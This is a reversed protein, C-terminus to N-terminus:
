MFSELLFVEDVVLVVTLASFFLTPKSYVNAFAIVGRYAVWLAASVLNLVLTVSFLQLILSLGFGSAMGGLYNLRSQKDQYALFGGVGAASAGAFWIVATISTALTDDIGGEILTFSSLFRTATYAAIATGILAQAAAQGYQFTASNQDVWLPNTTTFSQSLVDGTFFDTVFSFSVLSSSADFHVHWWPAVMVCAGWVKAACSVGFENWIHLSAQVSRGGLQANINAWGLSPFTVSVSFGPSPSQPTGQATQFTVSQTGSGTSQTNTVPQPAINVTLTSSSARYGADGSGNANFNATIGYSGTNDPRWIFNAQGGSDTTVNQYFAGNIEVQVVRGSLSVGNADKLSVTFSNAQGLTITGAQVTLKTDLYVMLPDYIRAANYVGTVASVFTINYSGKSGFVPPNFVAYGTSDTNVTATNVGNIFLSVPLSAIASNSVMDQAYVNWTVPQNVGPSQPSNNAALVVNRRAVSVMITTSSNTYFNQSPLVAKITYQGAAQPTWTFVTNGNPDTQLTAYLAGNIYINETLGAVTIQTSTANNVLSTEYIYQSLALGNESWGLQSVVLVLSMVQVTVQGSGPGSGMTVTLVYNGPKFNITSPSYLFFSSLTSHPGQLCGSFGGLLCITRSTSSTQNFINMYVETISNPWSTANFQFSVTTGVPANLDSHQVSVGNVLFAGERGDMYGWSVLNSTCYPYSNVCASFTVRLYWSNPLSNLSGAFASFRYCFETGCINSSGTLRTLSQSCNTFPYRACGISMNAQGDSWSAYVVGGFAGNYYEVYISASSAASNAGIIQYFEYPSSGQPHVNSPVSTSGAPNILRIIGQTASALSSIDRLIVTPLAKYITIKFSQSLGNLTATASRTVSLTYNGYALLGISLVATGNVNTTSSGTLITGPNPTSRTLTYNFVSNSLPKSTAQDRLQITANTKDLISPTTPNFSAQATIPHKQVTLFVDCCSAYPYQIDSYGTSPYLITYASDLFFTRMDLLYRGTRQPAYVAYNYGQFNTLFPSPNSVAEIHFLESLTLTNGSTYIAAYAYPYGCYIGNGYVYALGRNNTISYAGCYVLNGISNFNYLYVAVNAGPTNCSSDSCVYAFDSYGPLAYFTYGGSLFSSTPGGLTYALYANYAALAVPLGQMTVSLYPYTANVNVYLNAPPTATQVVQNNTASISNVVQYPVSLSTSSASYLTSPPSLSATLYLHGNRVATSCNPPYPCPPLYFNRTWNMNQAQTYTGNMTVTVSSTLNLGAWGYGIVNPPASSGSSYPPMYVNAPSTNNSLALSLINVPVVIPLGNGYYYNYIDWSFAIQRPNLIQTTTPTQNITLSQQASSALYTATGAFAATIVHSGTIGPNWVFSAYGTTNTTARGISIGDNYFNMTAYWAPYGYQDRLQAKLVTNITAYASSPLYLTTSTALAGGGGGGGDPCPCAPLVFMQGNSLSFTGFTVRVSLAQGSSGISTGQYYRSAADWNLGFLVTSGDPGLAVMSNEGSPKQNMSFGEAVPGGIVTRQEGQRQELQFAVVSNTEVHWVLRYLHPDGLAQIEVPTRFPTYLLDQSRELFHMSVAVQDNGARGQLTIRHYGAVDDIIMSLARDWPLSQWTNSGMVQIEWRMRGLVTKGQPDYITINSPEIKLTIHGNSLTNGISASSQSGTQVLSSSPFQSQRSGSLSDSSSPSFFTDGSFSARWLGPPSIFVAQGNDDTYATSIVTWNGDKLEEELVLLRGRVATGSNSDLLITQINGNIVLTALSTSRTGITFHSLQVPTAWVGDDLVTAEYQYQGSALAEGVQFAARGRSDTTETTVHLLSEGQVLTLGLRVGVLPNNNRDRLAVQAQNIGDHHTHSELVLHALSPVVSLAASYTQPASFGPSTEVRAEISIQYSQSPRFLNPSLSVPILNDTPSPTAQHTWLTVGSSDSASLYYPPVAQSPVGTWIEQGVSFVNVSAAVLKGDAGLRYFTLAPGVPNLPLGEAVAAFYM